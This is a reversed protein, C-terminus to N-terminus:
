LALRYALQSYKIEQKLHMMKVTIHAMLHATFTQGRQLALQYLVRVQDKALSVTEWNGGSFQLSHTVLTKLSTSASACGLLVLFPLLFLVLLPLPLLLTFHFMFPLLVPLLFVVAFFLPMSLLFPVPALSRISIETTLSLM